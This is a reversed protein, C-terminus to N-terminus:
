GGIAHMPREPKQFNHSSINHGAWKEKVARVFFESIEKDTADGRLLPKLDYENLAFLCNRIKGDSTIRLRDCTSCFPHSISSIFGITGQGHNLSFPRAPSSGDHSLPTVSYQKRLVELMEDQTVVADPKWFGGSDLPMFEIFRVLYHKQVALHAFSLLEDDNFDRIVVCNIKIPMLGAKEACLLGDLVRSFAASDTMAKFKGPNLTDLSVTIGNLGQSKLRSALESLCLGNTTMTVSSIGSSRLMGVLKEIHTRLTPEGGTLRVKKVGLVALVKVARAIEEFTLLQDKPVWHFVSSSMCYGCRLNCRDTVSVRVKRHVRGLADKLM